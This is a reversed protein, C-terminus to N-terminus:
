FIKCCPSGRPWCSEKMLAKDRRALVKDLSNHSSIGLMASLLDSYEVGTESLPAVGRVTINEGRELQKVRQAAAYVDLGTYVHGDQRELQQSSAVVYDFGAKELDHPTPIFRSIDERSTLPNCIMAISKMGKEKAAGLVERWETVPDVILIADDACAMMTCVDRPSIRPPQVFAGCSTFSLVLLSALLTAPLPVSLSLLLMRERPLLSLFHRAVGSSSGSTLGDAFCAHPAADALSFKAADILM